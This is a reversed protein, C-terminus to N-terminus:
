ALRALLWPVRYSGCLTALGWAKACAILHMGLLMCRNTAQCSCHPSAFLRSFDYQRTRYSTRRVKENLLVHSSHEYIEGGDSMTHPHFGKERCQQIMRLGSPTVLRFIGFRRDPDQFPVTYTGYVVRLTQM